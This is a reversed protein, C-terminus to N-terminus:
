SPNSLHKSSKLIEKPNNMDDDTVDKWSAHISRGKDGVWLLIYAVLEKGGKGKLPGEFMLSTHREFKEWAEPLNSANWDMKPPPLGTLEM